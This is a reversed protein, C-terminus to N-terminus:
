YLKDITDLFNIKPKWQLQETVVKNDFIFNFKRDEILKTEVISSSHIADRIKVAIDYTNLSSPYGANVIGSYNRKIIRQILDVMDDVHLLNVRAPGNLYRHVVIPQDAKAKDVMYKLFMPKRTHEGYIHGTRIIVYSLGRSDAEIQILNECLQKAIGQIGKPRTKTNGRIKLNKSSFGSFVDISSLFILKAGTAVCVDIVNKTISINEGIAINTNSIRPQALHIIYKVGNEIALVYLLALQSSLDIDVKRLPIVRYSSNLKATVVSGVDGSAGLVLISKQIKGANGTKIARYVVELVETKLQTENTKTLVKRVAQSFSTNEYLSIVGCAISNSRSIGHDCCIVIRKNNKLLQVSYQITARIDKTSNGSKDVLDRVDIIDFDREPVGVVSNYAGTGVKNSIWNIM